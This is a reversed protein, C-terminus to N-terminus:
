RRDRALRHGARRGVTEGTALAPEEGVAITHGLGFVDVHLEGELTGLVGVADVALLVGGRALRSAVDRVGVLSEVRCAHGPGLLFTALGLRLALLLAEGLLFVVDRRPPAGDTPDGAVLVLVHRGETGVLPHDLQVQRREPVVFLHAEHNKKQPTDVVRESRERGGWGGGKTGGASRDDRARGPRRGNRARWREGVASQKDRGPPTLSRAHGAGGVRGVAEAAVLRHRGAGETVASCGGGFVVLRGEDTTQLGYLPGGPQVAEALEHTPMELGAATYAKNRSITVSPLWAGDMRHQAILNGESNSVTLVSPVGIGEAHQEAAAIVETARELPITAVM